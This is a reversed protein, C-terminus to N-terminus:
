DIRPPVRFIRLCTTKHFGTSLTVNRRVTRRPCALRWREIEPENSEIFSCARLSLYLSADCRRLRRAKPM